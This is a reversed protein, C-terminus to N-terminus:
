WVISFGFSHAVATKATRSFDGQVNVYASLRGYIVARLDLNARAVDQPPEAGHVVFNVSPATLFASETTRDTNFEHRWALRTFVSFRLNRSVAAAGGVHVGATAPVSWTDHAQHRLGILSTGSDPSDSYASTNLFSFQVGGFPIVDLSWFRSRRGVEVAGDVSRSDFQATLNEAAGFAVQPLSGPADGVQVPVITSPLVAAREVTNNYFGMGVAGTGYYPGRETALYTAAHQATTKGGTAFGDAAFTYTGSSGAFGILFRSSKRIDVGGAVGSGRQSSLTSGVPASGELASDGNVGSIWGNWQRTPPPQKRTLFFAM